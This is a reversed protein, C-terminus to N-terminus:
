EFGVSDDDDRGPADLLKPDRRDILWQVVVFALAFLALTLPVSLVTSAQLQSGGWLVGPFV